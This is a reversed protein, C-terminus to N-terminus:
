YAEILFFRMDDNTIFGDVTATLNTESGDEIFRYKGNGMDYVKCTSFSHGQGSGDDYPIIYDIEADGMYGGNSNPYNSFFQVDYYIYGGEGDTWEYRGSPLVYYNDDTDYDGSALYLSVNYDALGSVIMKEGSDKLTIQFPLNQGGNQIYYWGSPLSYLICNQYDFFKDNANMQISLRGAEENMGDTGYLVLAASGSATNSNTVYNKIEGYGSMEVGSSYNTNTMKESGSAYLGMWSIWLIGLIMCSIFVSLVIVGTSLLIKKFRGWFSLDPPAEEDFRAGPPHLNLERLFGNVECNYDIFVPIRRGDKLYIILAKKRVDFESGGFPSWWMCIAFPLFSGLSAVSLIIALGFVISTSLYWIPMKGFAVHSIESKEFTVTTPKNKTIWGLWYIIVSIREGWLIIETKMRDYYGIFYRCSFQFSGTKFIKVDEQMDENEEVTEEEQVSETIEIGNNRRDNDANISEIEKIKEGCRPCFQHAADLKLGCKFCFQPHMVGTKPTEIKAGCVGCFKEGELVLNGCRLCKM